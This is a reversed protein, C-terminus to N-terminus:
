RTASRPAPWTVTARAAARGRHGAHFRCVAEVLPGVFYLLRSFPVYEGFPVLHIKRYVAATAGDPQVLYAANYYREAPPTGARVPKVPEIQDSGILLTVNAQRALRRIADGGALDREYPLPTASEPWLIFQANRGIAERTMDIYRQMIAGRMAPDWKQDQPINGQLVAVRVPSAPHDCPAVRWGRTGWLATGLVGGRRGGRRAVAPSSREIAAYAAAASVLAVLASLGYVGVVSAIQAIPLVTAQSYGLLEWPFGDLVYTRGMERRSGSPPRRAAAGADGDRAVLRAQIVAFLAPYLSLYAILVGAAFAALATNLGGFTTM